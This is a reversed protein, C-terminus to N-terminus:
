EVASITRRHSSRKAKRSRQSRQARRPWRTRRAERSRRERRRLLRDAAVGAAPRPGSAVRLALSGGSTAYPQVLLLGHRRSVAATRRLGPGGARAATYLSSGDACRLRVRVDWVEPRAAGAPALADLDLIAEATWSNGNGNLCADRVQGLRGDERHRLEIDVSAPRARLLRGYLDHVRVHLRTRAGARPEADITVPLRYLPKTDIRDLEVQPLDTDWVPRGAVRVYPPLLRAPRNALEALRVLDRPEEAATVVRAIWRAPARAALLDAEDFAALHERTLRWWDNRFDPSRSGLERTYMRLDHDLFKTRAARTLTSRGAGELIEVSRRHAELRNRWNGLTGRDLSISPEAADRRVHWIYVPAPILAIRPGAALVRATFVFDEYRFDGEPFTVAHRALFARDYLKNVCLTDRVLRPQDDPSDYVAERLFLARQWPVDRGHPLERRICLGATVQARHRAAASVLSNVAGPPLVDDSDLFMVYRASAHMLGDNRPTGCGGSNAARHVVRIRAYREALGMLVDTTGDGSGDDIVVVEAVCPGQRLASLVADAIRDADDFGIVIVSVQATAASGAWEPPAEDM